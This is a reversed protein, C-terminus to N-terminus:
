DAVIRSGRRVCRSCEDVIPRFPVPARAAGCYLQVPSPRRQRREFFALATCYYGAVDATLGFRDTGYATATINGGFIEVDGAQAFQLDTFALSTILLLRINLKM